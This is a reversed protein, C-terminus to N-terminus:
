ILNYSKFCFVDNTTAAKELLSSFRGNVSHIDKVYIKMYKVVAKMQRQSMRGFYCDFTLSGFKPYFTDGVAKTNWFKKFDKLSKIQDTPFQYTPFYGKGSKYAEYEVRVNAQSYFRYCKKVGCEALRENQLKINRETRDKLFIATFGGM